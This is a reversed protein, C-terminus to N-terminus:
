QDDYEEEDQEENQKEANAEETADIWQSYVDIPESLSNISTQFTVPCSNCVLSGVGNEFDQKV